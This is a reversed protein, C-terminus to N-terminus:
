NELLDVRNIAAPEVAEIGSRDVATDAALTDLYSDLAQRRLTDAIEDRM